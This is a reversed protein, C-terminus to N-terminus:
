KVPLNNVVTILLYKNIFVWWAEPIYGIDTKDVNPHTNNCSESQYLFWNVSQISQDILWKDINHDEYDLLFDNTFKVEALPTLRALHLM